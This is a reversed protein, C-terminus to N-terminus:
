FFHWSLPKKLSGLSETTDEWEGGASFSIDPYSKKLDAILPALALNVERSNTISENIDASVTVSRRFDWRYIANKGRQEVIKAVAAFPILRGVENPIMLNELTARKTRAEANLRVRVAILKSGERLETAVGGDFALRITRAIMAKTLLSRRAAVEDVHIQFETKGDRYNLGFDTIGPLTALRAEVQKGAEELSELKEGRLRIAVPKGVPPGTRVRSFRVRLFPGQKTLEEAKIRLREIIEAASAQRNREPTLFIQIQGLHTGRQTLPDNPDDKQEGISTVYSVLEQPSLSEEILAELEKFSEESKELGTELPLDARLFFVEIGEAPFLVLPMRYVAFSLSLAFLGLFSFAVLYRFRISITLAKKYLDNIRSFLSDPKPANSFIPKTAKKQRKRLWKERIKLLDYTHSPLIFLAELLSMSLAFVLVIPLYSIFKGFIGSMTMLPSFAAITTLVTSTVPSLVEATGDRCAEFASKGGEYHQWINEAVVIADDVLMGLVMVMGFMTILNITLGAYGMLAVAALAAFPIGLVTVFAIVPHIFLLLIVLVLITGYLGNSTLIGLRNAVLASVDNIYSIEIPGGSWKTKFEESTKKVAEVLSLIDGSDTKAVVLNISEKGRTRVIKYRDEFAPKIDAIDGLTLTPGFGSSRLIVKKIDELQKLEGITRILVEGSPTELLGGPLNVNSASLVTIIETLSLDFEKLKKPDIEVWYERERFGNLGVRSIDPIDILRDKLQSAFDQTTAYGEPSSVTVELIPMDGSSLEQVQPPYPLDSPLNDVRDVARYIDDITRRKEEKSLDPDVKLVIISRAEVSVSDQESVGGVFSLEEELPATIYQEVELPSAGLYITEIRVIHFDVRPFAERRLKFYELLGLGIVFVTLLNVLLSRRIFFAILEGM